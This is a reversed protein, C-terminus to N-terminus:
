GLITQIYKRLLKESQVNQTLINFINQANVGPPMAASFSAFDGDRLMERVATGSVNPTGAGRTFSEPSEEAALVCQGSARLTPCYKELNKEPYNQATDTPDSYVVLTDENSPDQDANGLAEYVKRVPSGGYEIQVNGPMIPELEQKWIKEMDSGLIPFQGKRKRDSTSVFLKVIDNEAAAMTVLAHHGAHYPKASVPVLAIKM